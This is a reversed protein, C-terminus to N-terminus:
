LSYLPFTEGEGGVEKMGDTAVATLFYIYLSRGHGAVFAVQQQHVSSKSALLNNETQWHGGAITAAAAVVLDEEGGGSSKKETFLLDDFLGRSTCPPM